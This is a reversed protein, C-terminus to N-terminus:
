ARGIKALEDRTWDAFFAENWDDAKFGLLDKQRTFDLLARTSMVRKLKLESIKRRIPRAWALVDSDILAEELKDDYGMKIIGARFRDLTAGDLRNRGAYILDGGHGFTNAAAICVFNEHKRAIPNEHRQPITMQGNALAANLALLVNEDAADIEDILFVGGHEFAKVFSAPVYAFSGGAQIPLLWGTLQNESMGGSCSVFAFPLNIAKAIQEALATKGCGAPGVLLVNQRIQSLKLTKEFASHVFGEVPREAGSTDAVVHRVLKPEIGAVAKRLAGLMRSEFDSVEANLAGVIQEPSMTSKALMAFIEKIQSLSMEREAPKARAKRDLHALVIDRPEAGILATLEHRQKSVADEYTCAGANAALRALEMRPLQELKPLVAQCATDNSMTM